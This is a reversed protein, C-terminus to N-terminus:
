REARGPLCTSGDNLRAEDESFIVREREQYEGSEVSLLSSLVARTATGRLISSSEVSIVAVDQDGGRPWSM